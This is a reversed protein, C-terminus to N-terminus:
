NAPYAFYVQEGRGQALLEHRYWGFGPVPHDPHHYYHVVAGSSHGFTARIVVRRSGDPLKESVPRIEELWEDTTIAGLQGLVLYQATVFYWTDEDKQRDELGVRIHPLPSVKDDFRPDNMRPGFWYRAHAGGEQLPRLVVRRGYEVDLMRNEFHIRPVEVADLYGLRQLLLVAAAGCLFTLLVATAALARTSM